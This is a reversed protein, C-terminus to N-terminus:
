TCPTNENIWLNIMALLPTDGLAKGFSGDQRQGTYACWGGSKLKQLQDVLDTAFAEEYTKPM